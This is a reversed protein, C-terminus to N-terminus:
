QRWLGTWTPRISCCLPGGSRVEQGTRLGGVEPASEGQPSQIGAVGAWLRQIALRVSRRLLAQGTSTPSRSSWTTMAHHRHASPQSMDQMICTPSSMPADVALEAVSALSIRQCLATPGRCRSTPVELQASPRKPRDSRKLGWGPRRAALNQDRRDAAAWDRALVLPERIICRVSHPGPPEGRDPPPPRRAGVTGRSPVLDAPRARYASRRAPSWTLCSSAPCTRVRLPCEPVEPSAHAPSPSAIIGAWSWRASRRSGSWSHCRM